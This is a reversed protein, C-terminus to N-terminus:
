RRLWALSSVFDNPLPAELRLPGVELRHAHLMPRTLDLRSGDARSLFAPGGYARDGLLPQLHIRVQHTRGTEPFAAVYAALDFQQLVEARTLANKGDVRSELLAQSPPRLSLARYEKHVRRERFDALLRQQASPTRAFLTLGTTGKDLRHVLLAQSNQEGLSVLLASVLEPLSPGGALEEQAALGAPKDVAILSEDLHLLASRPLEVAVPARLSVEVRDGDHLLLASDRVRQGGVFAGGRAIAQAAVEQSVGGRRVLFELLPEEREAILKLRAPPRTLRKGQADRVLPLRVRGRVLWRRAPRLQVELDPAQGPPRV